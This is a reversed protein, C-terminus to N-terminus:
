DEEGTGEYDDSSDGDNDEDAAGWTSGVFSGLMDGLIAAAVFHPSSVVLLMGASSLARIVGAYGATGLPRRKVASLTWRVLLFETLAYLLMVGAASLM